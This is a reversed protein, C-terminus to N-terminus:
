RTGGHGPYYIKTVQYVQNVQDATLKSNFHIMSGYHAFSGAQGTNLCGYSMGSVNTSNGSDRGNNTKPMQQIPATDGPTAAYFNSTGNDGGSALCIFVWEDKKPGTGDCTYTDSIRNISGSAFHWAHAPAPCIGITGFYFYSSHTGADAQYGDIGSGGPLPETDYRKWMCATKPGPGPRWGTDIRDSCTYVFNKLGGPAQWAKLNANWAMGASALINTYTGTLDWKNSQYRDSAVASPLLSFEIYEALGSPMSGIPTLACGSTGACRSQLTSIRAQATQLQQKLQTNKTQLATITTQNAQAQQQLEINSIQSTSLSKQCSHLSSQSQSNNTQCSGLAIQCSGLSNQCSSLAPQLQANASRYVTLDADYQPLGDTSNTDPAAHSTVTYLSLLIWPLCSAKTRM